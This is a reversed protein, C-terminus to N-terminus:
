YLINKITIINDASNNFGCTSGTVMNYLDALAKQKRDKMDKIYDPTATKKFLGKFKNFM